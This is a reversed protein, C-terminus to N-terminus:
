EGVHEMNHDVQSHADIFYLENANLLGAQMFVLLILLVKKLSRRFM